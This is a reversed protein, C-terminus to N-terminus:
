TALGVAHNRRAGSVRDFILSFSNRMYKRRKIM